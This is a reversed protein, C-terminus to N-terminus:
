RITEAGFRRYYRELLGCSELVRNTRAVNHGSEFGHGPRALTAAGVLLSALVLDAYKNPMSEAYHFNIPFGDGVVTATVRSPLHLRIGLVGADSITVAEEVLEDLAFETTRSTTSVLYCDRQLAAAHEGRLSTRGTSGVILLPRHDRLLGSLSRATVFGREHAAILRVIAQDHVAVRM